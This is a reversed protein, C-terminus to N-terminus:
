GLRGRNGGLGGMMGRLARGGQSIGGKTGRDREATTKGLEPFYFLPDYGFGMEGGVGGAGGGGGGGGVVGGGGGGAGGGVGGGGGRGVRRRGMGGRRGWRGGVWWGGGGSGGGWMRGGRWCGRMTRVMRGVGGGGWMGRRIVGRREGWRRWACGRIM